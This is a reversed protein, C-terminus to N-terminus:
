ILNYKVTHEAFNGSDRQGTTINLLVSDETFKMAHAIMPSTIVLTGAEVIIKEMKADNGKLDKSYSEYKGSVLYCYQMQEPHYHNARVSGKKSTIIAIHSVPEELINAIMGRDDEFAPEIKVAKENPM